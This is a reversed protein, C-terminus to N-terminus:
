DYCSVSLSNGLFIFRARTTSKRKEKLNLFSLNNRHNFYTEVTPKGSKNLAGFTKRRDHSNAYYKRM